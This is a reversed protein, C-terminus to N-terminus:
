PRILLLAAILFSVILVYLPEHEIKVMEAALATTDITISSGNM